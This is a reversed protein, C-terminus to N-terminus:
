KNTKTQFGPSPRFVSGIGLVENVNKKNSSHYSIRRCQSVEIRKKGRICMGKFSTFRASFDNEYKGSKKVSDFRPCSNRITAVAAQPREAMQSGFVAAELWVLPTCHSLGVKQTCSIASMSPQLLWYAFGHPAQATRLTSSPESTRTQCQSVCCQLLPMVKSAPSSVQLNGVLLPRRSYVPM